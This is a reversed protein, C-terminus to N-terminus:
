LYEKLRKAIIIPSLDLGKKGLIEDIEGADQLFISGVEEGKEFSQMGVYYFGNNISLVYTYNRERFVEIEDSEGSHLTVKHRGFKDQYFMVLAPYHRRAKLQKELSEHSITYNSIARM